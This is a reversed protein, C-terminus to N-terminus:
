EFRGGRLYKDYATEEGAVAHANALNILKEVEYRGAVFCDECFDFGKYDYTEDTALEKGCLACKYDRHKGEETYVCIMNHKRCYGCDNPCGDASWELM